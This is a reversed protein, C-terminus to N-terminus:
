WWNDTDDEHRAEEMTHNVKIAYVSVPKDGFHPHTIVECLYGNWPRSIRREQDGAPPYGLSLEVRDYHRGVLRKSWYDTQLRYEWIKVGSKIAEFYERKLSLHLVREAM